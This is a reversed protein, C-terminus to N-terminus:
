EVLVRFVQREGLATNVVVFYSGSPLGQIDLAMEDQLELVEAHVHKLGLVDLMSITMADNIPFSTRLFLSRNAPNPYVSLGFGLESQPDIATIISEQSTGICGNNDTVRLSYTGLATYTYSMGTAGPIAVGNRLWQYTNWTQNSTFTNGSQIFSPNPTPLPSIVVPLTQTCGAIDTVTVEFSDPPVNNLNQSNAGTSWQFTYASCSNGGSVQINASGNTASPCPHQISAISISIPDPQTLFFPVVSTDGGIGTVTVNNTGAALGTATPSTSGNSWYYSLGPCSASASVHAVGDNAGFCSIHYGCSKVVETVSSSYIQDTVRVVANCTSQNTAADSVTLTVINPGLHSCNFNTQSVSKNTIACNDTSANDMAGPVLIAQGSPNLTLTVNQCIAQPASTDEVTVTFTCNATLGAGDVVQFTNTTVGVPFTSGSSMGATMTTAHGPCNDTSIPANYSVIAGCSNTSCPVTFNGPCTISPTNNDIVTVSFTCNSSNGTPDAASYIVATTGIPFVTGSSPGLVLTTSASCNDTATVSYNVTAGCANTPSNATIPTPCSFTPPTNDSLGQGSYNLTFTGTNPDNSTITVTATHNGSSNPAFEVSFTVSTSGPVSYSAPQNLIFNVAPSITISTIDLTDTGGNEITFEHVIPSDCLLQSGFANGHQASAASSSPINNNGYKVRILPDSPLRLVNTGRTNEILDKGGLESIRGNHVPDSSIQACLHQSGAALAYVLLMAVLFFQRNSKMQIM